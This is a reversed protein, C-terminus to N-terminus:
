PWEKPDVALPTRLLVRAAEAITETLHDSRTYQEAADILRRLQMALAANRICVRALETQLERISANLLSVEGDRSFKGSAVGALYEPPTQAPKDGIFARTLAPRNDDTM